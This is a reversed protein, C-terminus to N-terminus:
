VIEKLYCPECYVIRPDDPRYVTEFKAGCKPCRRNHFELVISGFKERKQKLRTTFHETPLPLNFKRRFELENKTYRFYKNNKKDIINEELISDSVNHVDGPVELADRAKDISVIEEEPINEMNYGYQKVTEFDDYGKYSGATTIRYPFPSLDPPFFEGYEGALLMNTKIDDLVKWYEEELYQKNFICFSKNLLGICGFINHCNVCYDSYESDRSSDTMNSFLTRYSGSIGSSMYSFETAIAISDYTERTAISGILYASNECNEAFYSYFCNKSNIIFDGFSNVSKENHNPKHVATGVLKYFKKKNEGLVNRDGLNIAAIRKEYEEKMLQEGFFIYKKNRLNVGGFCNTCNRCDYLFTSDLCNKSFEVYRCNYLEHSEFCEACLSSDWIDFSDISDRSRTPSICYHCNEADIANFVLYCNKLHISDNTYDSNVSSTDVFLSPRPVNLQLKRFQEFFKRSSDYDMGYDEPNWDGGFWKQHEYIKYPTNPPYQAIIKEGTLASKINFLFYSNWFSLLLRWREKPSLTPLPVGIRKYFEIDQPRVYFKEGSFRSTRWQGGKEDLELKSFYEDLAKDFNPTKSAM